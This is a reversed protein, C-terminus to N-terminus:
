RYALHEKLVFLRKRFSVYSFKNHIKNTLIQSARKEAARNISFKFHDSMNANTEKVDVNDTKIM